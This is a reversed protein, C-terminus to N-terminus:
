QLAARCASCAAVTDAILAPAYLDKPHTLLVRMRGTVGATPAVVYGAQALGHILRHDVDQIEVLLRESGWARRLLSLATHTLGLRRAVGPPRQRPRTM